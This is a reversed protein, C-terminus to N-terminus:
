ELMLSGIWGERGKAPGDLVRVREFPIPVVTSSNPGHLTLARSELFQVRTHPALKVAPSPYKDLDDLNVVKLEMASFESDSFFAAGSAYNDTKIRGTRTPSPTSNVTIPSACAMTLGLLASALLLKLIVRADQALVM